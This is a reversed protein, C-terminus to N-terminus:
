QASVACNRGAEKAKYLAIDALKILKEPAVGPTIETTSYGSSISISGNLGNEFPISMRHVEERLEDVMSAFDEKSIGTGVGTFEEGGYRCFLLDKKKGFDTLLAGLSILCADGAQHGYTDNYRKFFDIDIMVINIITGPEQQLQEMRSFLVRRNSLGTLFDTDRQMILIRDKKFSEMRIYRFYGGLIVGFVLFVGTDLLDMVVLDTSKFIFILVSHVAFFFTSFLNIRVSHDLFLMPLVILLCPFTVSAHALGKPSYISTFIGLTYFIATTFYILPLSIKRVKPSKLRFIFFLAATAFTNSFYYTVYLLGYHTFIGLISTILLVFAISITLYHFNGTNSERVAEKNEEYAAKEKSINM